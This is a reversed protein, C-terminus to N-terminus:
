PSRVAVPRSAPQTTSPGSALMAEREIQQWIKTMATRDVVQKGNVLLKMRLETVKPEVATVMFTVAENRDSTALLGVMGFAMANAIKAGTRPDTRRGTLIGSEKDSHDVTFGFSFLGNAAAKFSQDYSYDLQRTELFKLESQKLPQECGALLAIAPVASL